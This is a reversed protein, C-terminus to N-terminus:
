HNRPRGPHEKPPEPHERERRNEERAENRQERAERAQEKASEPADRGRETDGREDKIDSKDPNDRKPTDPEKHKDSVEKKDRSPGSSPESKPKPLPIRQLIEGQQTADPDPLVQMTVDLDDERETQQACILPPFLICVLGGLLRSELLRTAFMLRRKSM